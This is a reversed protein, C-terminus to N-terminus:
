RKRSRIGFSKTSSRPADHNRGSAGQRGSIVPRFINRTSSLALERVSESCYFRLSPSTM